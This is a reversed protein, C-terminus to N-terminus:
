FHLQIHRIYVVVVIYLSVKQKQKTCDILEYLDCIFRLNIINNRLEIVCTILVKMINSNCAIIFFKM